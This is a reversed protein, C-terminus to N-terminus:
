SLMQHDRGGDICGLIPQRSDRARLFNATAPKQIQEKGSTPSPWRTGPRERPTRTAAKAPWHVRLTTALKQCINFENEGFNRKNEATDAGIKALFYTNQLM